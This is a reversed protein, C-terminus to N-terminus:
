SNAKALIKELKRKAKADKKMEEKFFKDIEDQGPHDLKNYPRM